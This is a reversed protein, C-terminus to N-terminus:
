LSEKLRNRVADLSECLKDLLILLERKDNESGMSETHYVDRLFEDAHTRAHSEFVPTNMDPETLHQETERVTTVTKTEPVNAQIDPVADDEEVMYVYESDDSLVVANTSPAPEPEERSPAEVPAPPASPLQVPADKKEYKRPQTRGQAQFILQRFQERTLGFQPDTKNMEYTEDVLEVLTRAEEESLQAALNLTLFSIGYKEELDLVCAANGNRMNVVRKYRYVSTKSLGILKGIEATTDDVPAVYGSDALVKQANEIEAAWFLATKERTQSNADAHQRFREVENEPKQRIFCLANTSGLLKLAECRRHGSLIEYTGDKNDYVTIPNLLGQEKISEALEEIHLMPLGANFPSPKLNEIPIPVATASNNQMVSKQLRKQAAKAAATNGFNM